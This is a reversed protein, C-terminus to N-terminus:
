RSNDDNAKKLKDEVRKVVDDVLQKAFCEAHVHEEDPLGPIWYDM